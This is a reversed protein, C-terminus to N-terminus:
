ACHLFPFGSGVKKMEMGPLVLRLLLSLFFIFLVMVRLVRLFSIWCGFSGQRTRLVILMMRFRAWIVYFAPDLDVPGDLLDLVAPSLALPMKSSWVSRVMAARFASISSSSVYSAEAAHLGAPLYKGRVLGLKVQFGFPLAGVAAVGVTAQGVRRSLTGTRARYTFDLHGGLDRIDLQVKWFGGDGSIDWLKMARRVATSTSLLVCKGPSVDQGVLRVYRATFYASEFLGRPRTASCKLNDAYLQPKIDPLSELRRCWPVYLAVIFVMSLPCGQSVVMGVGLSVWALPM